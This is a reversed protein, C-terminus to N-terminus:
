EDGADHQVSAGVHTVTGAATNYSFAQAASGTQCPQMWIAANAVGNGYMPELCLNTSQDVITTSPTDATMAYKGGGGPQAWVTANTGSSSPGSAAEPSWSSYTGWLEYKRVQINNNVYDWVQYYGSPGQVNCAQLSLARCSM